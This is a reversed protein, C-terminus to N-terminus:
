ERHCVIVNACVALIAALSGEGGMGRFMFQHDEIQPPSHLHSTASTGGVIECKYWNCKDGKFESLIGRKLNVINTFSFDVHVIWGPDDMTGISMGYEHEWNGDCQSRWWNTILQLSDHLQLQSNM